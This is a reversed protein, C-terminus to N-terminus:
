LNRGDTGWHVTETYKIYVNAPSIGLTEELLRCVEGTMEEYARPQGLGFCSVELFAAERAKKGRFYMPTDDSLSIMLSNESKGPLLTIAHGLGEKLLEKENDAIRVSTTLAIM